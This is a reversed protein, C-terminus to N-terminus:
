FILARIVNALVRNLGHSIWPGIINKTKHTVVVLLIGQAITSIIFLSDFNHPHALIFALISTAYAVKIETIKWLYLFLIGRFLFEENFAEFFMIINWDLSLNGSNGWSIVLSIVLTAVLALLGLLISLILKDKRIGCRFLIDKIEANKNKLEAKEFYYLSILPAIVFLSFKGIFYGTTSFEDSLYIVAQYFWTIGFMILSLVVVNELHEKKYKSAYALPITLALLMPFIYLNM